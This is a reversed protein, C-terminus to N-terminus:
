LVANLLDDAHITRRPACTNYLTVTTSLVIHLQGTENWIWWNNRLGIWYEIYKQQTSFNAQKLMGLDEDDEFTALDGGEDLCRNRADVLNLQEDNNIFLCGNRM